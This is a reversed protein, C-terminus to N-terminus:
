YFNKKQRELLKKQLDFGYVMGNKGVLIALLVTNNGSKVTTDIVSDGLILNNILLTRSYRLANELM